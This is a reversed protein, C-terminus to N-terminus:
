DPMVVIMPLGATTQEAGGMTTWDSAGGSTGHLLYLVPYSTHPHKAYGAPLLIRINAPGPLASTKVTLAILRSDLSKQSVVTLGDVSKFTPAAPSVKSRASASAALP